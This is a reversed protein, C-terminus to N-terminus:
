AIDMYESYCTLIKNLKGIKATESYKIQQLIKFQVIKKWCRYKNHKVLWTQIMNYAISYGM